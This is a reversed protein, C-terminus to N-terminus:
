GADFMFVGGMALVIAILGIVYYATAVQAHTSVQSPDFAVAKMILTTLM